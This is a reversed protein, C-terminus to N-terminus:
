GEESILNVILRIMLEKQGPASAATLLALAVLAKNSFSKQDLLDNKKLFLLFLFSGIRKNGDTFPHDKIVFYLLHAAKEELSPYVDEGGVTQMIAGLSSALGKDKEVGFVASESFQSRLQEVIRLAEDYELRHVVTRSIPPSGVRQHDYDDLLEEAETLNEPECPLNAVAKRVDLKGAVM